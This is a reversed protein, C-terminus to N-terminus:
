RQEALESQQPSETHVPPMHAQRARPWLQEPLASQQLPSVQLPPTHEIHALAPEDHVAPVPVAHQEGACHRWPIVEVNQQTCCPSPHVRSM